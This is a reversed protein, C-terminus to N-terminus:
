WVFRAAVGVPRTGSNEIAANIRELDLGGPEDDPVPKGALQALEQLLTLTKLQLPNLNLPNRKPPM